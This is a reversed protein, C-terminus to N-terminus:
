SFCIWMGSCVGIRIERCDKRASWDVWARPVLWNGACVNWVKLALFTTWNQRNICQCAVLKELLSQMSGTIKKYGHVRNCIRSLRAFKRGRIFPFFRSSTSSANELLGQMCRAVKMCLRPNQIWAIKFWKDQFYHIFVNSGSCLILPYVYVYMQFNLDHM